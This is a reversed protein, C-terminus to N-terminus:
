SRREDCWQRFLGRYNGTLPLRLLTHNVFIESQQLRSRITRASVSQHSIPQNQQAITRSITIRGMVTM